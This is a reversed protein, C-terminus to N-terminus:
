GAAGRGTGGQVPEAPLPRETLAAHKSNLSAALPDLDRDARHAYWWAIGFTSVFQGLGLLLGVNVRGFVETAMFDHAYTALLVYLFYWALFGAVLPFVLRRFRRRLETFEPDAYIQSYADAHEAARRAPDPAESM